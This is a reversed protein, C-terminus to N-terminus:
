RCIHSMADEFLVLNMAGIMENYGAQCEELLKSLTEWDKLNMYKTDAIGEAFHCFILPQQFVREVDINELKKTVESVLKDFLEIDSKDVLKDGYVRRAEHFYLRVLMNENKVCDGNAFLMGQFINAIDRMNFTYHFKVATPLFSSSVKNHLEIATDVIASAKKILYPNFKHIPAALHQSM